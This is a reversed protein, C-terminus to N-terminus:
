DTTEAGADVHPPEQEAPHGAPEPNLHTAHKAMEALRDIEKEIESHLDRLERTCHENDHALIALGVGASLLNKAAGLDYEARRIMDLDPKM